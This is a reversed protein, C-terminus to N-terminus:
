IYGLRNSALEYSKELLIEIRSRKRSMMQVIDGYECNVHGAVADFEHDVLEWPGLKSSWVGTIRQLSAHQVEDLRMAMNSKTYITIKKISPDNSSDMNCPAYGLTSYAQIFNNLTPTPDGNPWFSQPAVGPWWHRKTDGAAWAICNYRGMPGGRIKWTSHALKPFLQPLHLEPLVARSTAAQYGASFIIASQQNFGQSILHAVQAPDHPFGQM